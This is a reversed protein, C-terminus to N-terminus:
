GIRGREVLAAELHQHVHREPAQEGGFAVRCDETLQRRKGGGGVAAKTEAAEEPKGAGHHRM